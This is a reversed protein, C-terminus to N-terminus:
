QGAQSAGTVLQGLFSAIGQGVETPALIIGLGVPREARVQQSM